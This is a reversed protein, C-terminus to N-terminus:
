KEAEEDTLAVELTGNRRYEIAHGSDTRVRDVFTDYLSLSRVGLQLLPASHGEIHPCLVGASARTAGQGVQRREIVRVRAGRSALAHAVACGVIGAGILDSSCVDSSWDGQLITHRRRSSFFVYSVTKTEPSFNASAKFNERMVMQM